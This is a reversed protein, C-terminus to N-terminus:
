VLISTLHWDQRARDNLGYKQADSDPIQGIHGADESRSGGMEYAFQIVNRSEKRFKKFRWNGSCRRGNATGQHVESNVEASVLRLTM